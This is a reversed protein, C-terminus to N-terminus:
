VIKITYVDGDRSEYCEPGFNHSNLLWESSGPFASPYNSFRGLRFYEGDVRHTLGLVLGYVRGVDRVNEKESKIPLLYINSIANLDYEESECLGTPNRRRRELPEITDWGFAMGFDNDIEVRGNRLWCERLTGRIRIFGDSVSGFPDPGTTSTRAEVIEARNPLFVNWYSITGEMSAWSWSPARYPGSAPRAPSDLVGRRDIYWLLDGLLSHKWLGALYETSEVFEMEAAIGSLAVLKDSGFTLELTSYTRVIDHWTSRGITSDKSLTPKKPGHSIFDAALTGPILSRQESYTTSCCEWIIQSKEFHLVRPSLTREQMVWARRNLPSHEIDEDPTRFIRYLWRNQEEENAQSGEGDSHVWCPLIQDLNRNESELFGRKGDAYGTAAINLVSNNYYSPMNGAETEWDTKSDQLICICDIWIYRFGLKRTVYIADRFSQSLLVEPIQRKWEEVNRQTLKLLRSTDAGWAHSLTTYDPSADLQDPTCLRSSEGTVADGCWILRTPCQIQGPRPSRCRPHRSTKHKCEHLWNKALELTADHGKSPHMWGREVDADQM